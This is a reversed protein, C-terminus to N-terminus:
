FLSSRGLRPGATSSTAAPRRNQDLKTETGAKQFYGGDEECGLCGCQWTCIRIYVVM